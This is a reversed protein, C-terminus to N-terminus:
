SNLNTHIYDFDLFLGYKKAIDRAHSKGDPKQRAITYLRKGDVSVAVLTDVKIIAKANENIREIPLDHIHTSFVGRCGVAAFRKILEESLAAGDYASTSSFAEDVLILSKATIIKMMENFEMCEHELRGAAGQIATESPFHVCIYDVPLLMANNAPIYMGLQFLIQAIGVSHLFVSKGGSNAGTLVYFMGNKDFSVTNCIVDDYSATELLTPHYLNNIYTHNTQSIAPKCISARQNKFATLMEYGAILFSIESALDVMFQTQNKMYTSIDRPVGKVSNKLFMNFATKFSVTVQFKQEDTLHGLGGTVPVIPTQLTYPDNNTFNGGLIKDLLKGPKYREENVSVIGLNTIGIGNELNIGVTVSKIDKELHTSMKGTNSHLNNFEDSNYIENIKEALLRMGKSEVPLTEFSKYLKKVCDIYSKLQKVAYFKDLFYYDETDLGGSMSSFECIAPLITNKLLEFLGDCNLLDEFIDQRHRITDKDTTIFDAPDYAVMRGGSFIPKIQILRNIKLESIVGSYLSRNLNEDKQATHELNIISFNKTM